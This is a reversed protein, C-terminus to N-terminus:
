IKLEKLTENIRDFEFGKGSVFTIIKERISLNKGAKIERHKKLILERLIELYEDEDLDEFAQLIVNEPINRIKLEHRIKVRGWRNIRLKGRAFLKAFRFEDIFKNDELYKIMLITKEQSLKWEKMKLFVDQRCREQFACYRSIKEIIQADDDNLLGAM